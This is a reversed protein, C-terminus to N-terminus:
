HDAGSRTSHKQTSQPPSGQRQPFVRDGPVELAMVSAAEVAPLPEGSAIRDAVHLQIADRINAVAEEYTDGQNYCDQLSPCYAFYGDADEEVVVPWYAFWNM